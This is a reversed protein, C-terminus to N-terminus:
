EPNDELIEEPLTIKYHERLWDLDFKRVRGDTSGYKISAQPLDRLIFGLKTEFGRQTFRDKKRPTWKEKKRFFSASLALSRM